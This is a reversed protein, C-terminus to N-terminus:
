VWRHHYIRGTGCLLHTYRSFCSIFFSCYSGRVYDLNPYLAKMKDMVDAEKDRTVRETLKDLFRLGSMSMVMSPCELVASEVVSSDYVVEAALQLRSAIEDRLLPTVAEHCHDVNDLQIILDGGVRKTILCERLGSAESPQTGIITTLQPVTHQTEDGPDPEPTGVDDEALDQDATEQVMAETREEVERIRTLDRCANRYSICRPCSGRKSRKRTLAKSNSNSWHPEGSPIGNFNVLKQYTPSFLVLEKCDSCSKGKVGRDQCWRAIESTLMDRDKKDRSWDMLSLFSRDANIENMFLRIKVSTWATQEPEGDIKQTTCYLDELNKLNPQTMKQPLHNYLVCANVPSRMIYSAEADTLSDLSYSIPSLRGGNFGLFPLLQTM